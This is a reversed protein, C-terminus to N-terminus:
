SFQPNVKRGEAIGRAASETRKAQWDMAYRLWWSCANM